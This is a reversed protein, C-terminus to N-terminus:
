IHSDGRVDDEEDESDSEEKYKKVRAKNVRTDLWVDDLDALQISGNPFICKVRYPGMWRTHLKGPFIRYRNDYLLVLGGVSIGSSAPLKSDHETKRKRQIQLTRELALLRAEELDELALLRIEPDGTRIANRTALVRHTEM